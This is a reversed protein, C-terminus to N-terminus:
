VVEKKWFVKRRGLRIFYKEYYESVLYSLSLSLVVFVGMRLPVPIEYVNIMFNTFLKYVISHLLYVSYSIEGLLVLPKHFMASLQFNLKYFGICILFCSLTFVLRNFGTVLKIANGSVPFAVFLLVGVFLLLLAYSNTLQVKCLLIGILFGGFFLFLQNLPNTYVSWQSVLTLSATLKFFAFYVYLGFVLVAFAFLLSKSYKALFIFIAFFAYFVLENGISWVGSSLYTDWKVFGFLGTLNLFLNDITPVKKYLIIAVIIVLWLLPFIRFGRKKFFSLIDKKTFQM